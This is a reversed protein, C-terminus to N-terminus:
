MQLAEQAMKIEEKKEKVVKEEKVAKTETAVSEAKAAPAATKSSTKRQAM